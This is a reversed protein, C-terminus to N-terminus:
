GFYKLIPKMFRTLNRPRPQNNHTILTLCQTVILRRKARSLAVYFKRADEALLTPVSQHYYNPYRGDVADFVIVNDFELGKAKHVTSIITSPLSRPPSSREPLPHPILSSPPLSSSPHTSTVLDAEKLTSIEVLHARLQDILSPEAAPDIIETQLYEVVCKINPIPSIIGDDLLRRYAYTLESTLLSPAHLLKQTHFYLESYNRKLIEVRTAVRKEEMFKQQSEVIEAAKAACHSVLNCTARVDDDALHSNIGELHLAELLNKLKYAKQGPFLLRALRLTDFYPIRSGTEEFLALTHTPLYRRLNHYLIRCDFDANHAVLCADGVYNLFAKLAKDHPQLTAHRREEIIPNAIDGLMAPIPRDTDIHVCFDSKDIIKGDRMRTAAIQIIDDEYVNLGTTETDFVVITGNQIARLFAQVYTSGGARLYDSPVIARNMSARVFNRAAANGEFVHMGKLIRAWAMFNMDDAAVALHAFLLKMAQSAFTDAGSVKFFDAQHESLERAIIDADANAGVIIATTEGPHESALRIAEEAVDRVETDYTNSTLLRLEDGTREISNAAQPLLQPDINLIDTAYKNYVELLYDPSRYNTKLHLIHDKCREKLMNLTEIKAGMFSFIAQQEDGLFMVTEEIPHPSPSTQLSPTTPLGGRPSTQLPSLLDIIALQLPNLDQVEDVQIWSYRPTTPLGGGEILHLNLADYTLLLLDEFDLLHNQRKYREYHKALAMKRLLTTILRQSAYDYADSRTLDRYVDTHNYIDLMADADFAMQQIECIRRMAFIDDRSICEPHIRLTKPHGERIQHMMNSLHFVTAYERRRANSNMVKYEDEDIQQALISIADDEDIVTTDAAVINNEFLFRSCFRHVNGVFINNAEPDNVRQAIRETMGRAARNTFTLCIMDRYDVGHEHAYIIRETLLQTKGCGPPALVLWSGGTAQIVKTQNEQM